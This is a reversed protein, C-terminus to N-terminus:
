LCFFLQVAAVGQAIGAVLDLGGFRRGTELRPAPDCVVFVTKLFYVVFFIDYGAYVGLCVPERGGVNFRRCQFPNGEGVPLGILGDLYFVHRLDEEAFDHSVDVERDADRVCTSDIGFGAMGRHLHAFRNYFVVEGKESKRVDGKGATVGEDLSLPGVIGDMEPAAYDEPLSPGLYCYQGNMGLVSALDEEGEYIFVRLCGLDHGFYDEESLVFCYFIGIDEILDFPSLFLGAPIQACDYFKRDMFSLIYAATNRSEYNM